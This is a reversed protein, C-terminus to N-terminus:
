SCLKVGAVGAEAREWPRCPPLPAPGPPTETGATGRPAAARDGEGRAGSKSRMGWPGPSEGSLGGGVWLETVTM